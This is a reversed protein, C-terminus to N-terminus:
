INRDFIVEIYIISFPKRITPFLLCFLYREDAITIWFPCNIGGNSGSDKPWFGFIIFFCDPLCNPTIKYFAIHWENTNTFLL